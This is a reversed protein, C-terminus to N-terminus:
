SQMWTPFQVTKETQNHTYLPLRNSRYLNNDNSSPGNELRPYLTLSIETELLVWGKLRTANDSKTISEIYPMFLAVPGMNPRSGGYLEGLLDTKNIKGVYRAGTQITVGDIAMGENMLPYDAPLYHLKTNSSDFPPKWFYRPHNNFSWSKKIIQGQIFTECKDWGLIGQEDVDTTKWFENSAVLITQSGMRSADVAELSTIKPYLGGIDEACFAYPAHNIQPVDTAKETLSKQMPVFNSLRMHAHHFKVFPCCAVLSYYPEQFIGKHDGMWFECFQIPLIIIAFESTSDGPKYQQIFIHQRRKISLPINVRKPQYLLLHQAKDGDVYDAEIKKADTMTEIIGPLRTGEKIIGKAIDGLGNGNTSEFKGTEFRFIKGPPPIELADDEPPRKVPVGGQQKGKVDRELLRWPDESFKGPHPTTGHLHISAILEDFDHDGSRHMLSHIDREAWMKNKLIPIEKHDILHWILSRLFADTYFEGPVTKIISDLQIFMRAISQAEKFHEGFHLHKLALFLTEGIVALLEVHKNNEEVTLAKHVDELKINYAKQIWEAWIDQVVQLEQYVKLEDIDKVKDKNEEQWEELKKQERLYLVWANILKYIHYGALGLLPVAPVVAAAIPLPM